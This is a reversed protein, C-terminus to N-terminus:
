DLNGIEFLMHIHSAGIVNRAVIGTTAPMYIRLLDDRPEWALAYRVQRNTLPNVPKMFMLDYWSSHIVTFSYYIDPPSNPPPNTGPQTSRLGSFADNQIEFWGADLDPGAVPPRVNTVSFTGALGNEKFNAGYIM